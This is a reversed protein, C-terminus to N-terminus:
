ATQRLARRWSDLDKRVRSIAKPVIKRVLGERQKVFIKQPKKSGKKHKPIYKDTKM